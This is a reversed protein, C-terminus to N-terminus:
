GSFENLDDLLKTMIQDPTCGMARSLANFLYGANELMVGILLYISQFVIEDDPTKGEAKLIEGIRGVATPIVDASIQGSTNNAQSLFLGLVQRHVEPYSM